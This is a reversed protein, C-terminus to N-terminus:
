RRGMATNIHAMARALHREVVGVSIRMAKAIAPYSMEEFRHLTFAERTRPPLDHIALRLQNLTQKAILAREPSIDDAPDFIIEWAEDFRRQLAMEAHHRDVLVNNAVRFLYREVDEIADAKARTQLRLFVDQVLDDAESANTRKTFYRRLASGYREM